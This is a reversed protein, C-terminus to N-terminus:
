VWFGEFLVGIVILIEILVNPCFFHNFDCWLGFISRSEEEEVYEVTPFEFINKFGGV